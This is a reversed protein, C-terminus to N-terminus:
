EGQLGWSPEPVQRVSCFFTQEDIRYQTGFCEGETLLVAGSDFHLIWVQAELAKSLDREFEPKFNLATV